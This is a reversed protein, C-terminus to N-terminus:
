QVELDIAAAVRDPGDPFTGLFRDWEADFAAYLRLRDSDLPTCALELRCVTQGHPYLTVDRRLLAGCVEDLSRLDVKLTAGVLGDRGAFPGPGATGALWLEQDGHRFSLNWDVVSTGRGLHLTGDSVDWTTGALTITGM